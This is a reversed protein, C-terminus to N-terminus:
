PGKTAPSSIQKGELSFDNEQQAATLFSPCAVLSVVCMGAELKDIFELPIWFHPGAAESLPTEAADTCALGRVSLPLLM